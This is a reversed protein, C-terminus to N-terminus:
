TRLQPYLSLRPRRGYPLPLLFLPDHQQPKPVPGPPPPSGRLPPPPLTPLRYNERSCVVRKPLLSRFRYTCPPAVQEEEFEPYSGYDAKMRTYFLDTYLKGVEDTFVGTRIFNNHFARRVGQHTKSYIRMEVLLASVAYYCAYYLRGVGSMWSGRGILYDADDMVEEIRKLQDVIFTSREQETM